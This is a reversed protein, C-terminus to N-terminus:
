AHLVGGLKALTEDTAVIAAFDGNERFKYMGNLILATIKQEADFQKRWGESSFESSDAIGSNRKKQYYDGMKTAFEDYFGEHTNYPMTVVFTEGSKRRFVCDHDFVGLRGVEGFYRDEYRHRSRGFLLVRELEAMHVPRHAYSMVDFDRVFADFRDHDMLAFRAQEIPSFRM